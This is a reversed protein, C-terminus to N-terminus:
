IDVITENSDSLLNKQFLEYVILNLTPTHASSNTM